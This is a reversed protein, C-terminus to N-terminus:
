GRLGEEVQVKMAMMDSDVVTAPWHWSNKGESALSYARSVISQNM